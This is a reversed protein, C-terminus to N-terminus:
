VGFAIASAQGVLGTRMTTGNAVPPVV